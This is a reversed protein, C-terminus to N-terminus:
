SPHSGVLAYRDPHARVHRISPGTGVDRVEGRTDFVRIDFDPTQMARRLLADGLELVQGPKLQHADLHAEYLEVYSRIDVAVATASTLYSLGPPAQSPDTPEDLCDVLRNTGKEAVLRGIHRPDTGQSTVGVTMHTRKRIHRETMDAIGEWPLIVDGPILLGQHDQLNFRKIAQQMAGVPGQPTHEESFHYEVDETVIWDESSLHAMVQEGLHGVCYYFHRFGQDQLNQTMIDLLAKGGIQLLPKPTDKGIEEQANTAKGGVPMLVAVDALSPERIYPLEATAELTMVQGTGILLDFYIVSQPLTDFGGVAVVDKFGEVGGFFVAHAQAEVEGFAEYFVIEAAGYGYSDGLM